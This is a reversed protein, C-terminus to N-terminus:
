EGLFYFYVFLVKKLFLFLFGSQLQLLRQTQKKKGRHTRRIDTLRVLLGGKAFKVCQRPEQKRSSDTIVTVVQRCFIFAVRMTVRPAVCRISFINRNKKRGWSRSKHRAIGRWCRTPTPSSESPQSHPSFVVRTNSAQQGTVSCPQLSATNCQTKCSPRTCQIPCFPDSISVKTERSM